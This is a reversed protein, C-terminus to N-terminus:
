YEHEKVAKIVTQMDSTYADCCSLALKYQVDKIGSPLDQRLLCPFGDKVDYVKHERILYGKTYLGADEDAYGLCRLGAKFLAKKTAPLGTEVQAILCPLKIGSVDNREVRYAVLFLNEWEGYDLQAESSIRLQNLQDMGFILEM